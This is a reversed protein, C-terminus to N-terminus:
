RTHHTLCNRSFRSSSLSFFGYKLGLAIIGGAAASYPLLINPNLVAGLLVWM